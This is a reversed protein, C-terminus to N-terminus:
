FRSMTVKQTEFNIRKFPFHDKYIGVFKEDRHLLAYPAYPKFTIRQLPQLKSSQQRVKICAIVAEVVLYLEDCEIEILNPLSVAKEFLQKYDFKYLLQSSYEINIRETNPMTQILEHLDQSITLDRVSENVIADTSSHRINIFRASQLNKLHSLFKFDLNMGEVSELTLHKLNPLNEAISFLEADKMPVNKHVLSQLQENRVSVM